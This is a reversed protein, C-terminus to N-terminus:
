LSGTTISSATSSAARSAQRRESWQVLRVIECRDPRDPRALRLQQLDGAEVGREVAAMGLDGVAVRDGLREICLAHAAVAKM